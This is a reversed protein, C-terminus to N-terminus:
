SLEFQLEDDDVGEEEGGATLDLEELIDGKGASELSTALGLTEQLGRLVIGKKEASAHPSAAAEDGEEGEEIIEQIRLANISAALSQGLSTGLQDKGVSAAMSVTVSSMSAKGVSSSLVSMPKRKDEVRYRHLPLELDAAPASKALVDKKPALRTKQNETFSQPLSLPPM